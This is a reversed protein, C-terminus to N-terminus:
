KDRRSSGMRGRAYDAVFGTALKTLTPKLLDFTIKLIGLLLGAKEAKEVAGEHGKGVVVVKTRRFVVRAVFLGVISAGAIWAIPQRAFARKTRTRFDLDQRLAHLNTAVRQRAAALETKLVVKRDDEAM